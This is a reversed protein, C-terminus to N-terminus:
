GLLKEGIVKLTATNNYDVFRALGGHIIWSGQIILRGSWHLSDVSGASGVALHLHETEPERRISIIAREMDLSTFNDIAIEYIAWTGELEQDVYVWGFGGVAFTQTLMIQAGRIYNEAGPTEETGKRIIEAEARASAADRIPRGIQRRTASMILRACAAPRM